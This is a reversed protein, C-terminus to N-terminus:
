FIMETKQFFGSIINYPRRLSLPDKGLVELTKLVLLSRKLVGLPRLRHGSAQTPQPLGGWVDSCVRCAVLTCSLYRPPPCRSTFNHGQATGRGVIGSVEIVTNSARISCLLIFESQGLSVTLCVGTGWSQPMAFGLVQRTKASLCVSEFPGHPHWNVSLVPAAKM